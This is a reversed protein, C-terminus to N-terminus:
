KSIRSKMWRFLEESDGTLVAQTPTDGFLLDTPTQTWKRAAEKDNNFLRHSLYLLEDLNKVTEEITLKPKM